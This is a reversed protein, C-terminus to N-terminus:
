LKQIRLIGFINGQRNLSFKIAKAVKDPETKVYKSM